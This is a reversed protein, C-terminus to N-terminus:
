KSDGARTNWAAIAEAETFRWQQGLLVNTSAMCETCNVFAFDGDPDHQTGTGAEGGCFPCPKLEVQM